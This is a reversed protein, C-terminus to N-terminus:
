IPGGDPRLPTPQDRQRREDEARLSGAAARFLFAHVAPWLFGWAIISVPLLYPATDFARRVLVLGLGLGGSEASSLAGLLGASRLAEISETPFAGDRDVGAAAEAITTTSVREITEEYTEASPSM